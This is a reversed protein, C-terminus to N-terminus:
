QRVDKTIIYQIYQKQFQEYPLDSQVYPSLIIIDILDENILRIVTKPTMDTYNPEFLRYFKHFECLLDEFLLYDGKILDKLFTSDYLSFEKNLIYLSDQYSINSSDFIIHLGDKSGSGLLDKISYLHTTITNYIRKEYKLDAFIRNVTYPQFYTLLFHKLIIPDEEIHYLSKIIEDTIHIDKIEGSEYEHKLTYLIMDHLSTMSSIQSRIHKVQIFDDILTLRRNFLQIWRDQYTIFSKCFDYFLEFHIM